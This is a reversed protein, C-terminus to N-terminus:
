LFKQQAELYIKMAKEHASIQNRQAPTAEAYSPLSLVKNKHYQYFNETASFAVAKSVNM